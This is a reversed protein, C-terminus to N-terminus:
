LIERQSEDVIFKWLQEKRANDLDTFQAAFSNDEVRVIIAKNTFTEQSNDQATFAITIQIEEDVSPQTSALKVACGSTSINLIYGEGEVNDTVYHVAKRYLSFRLGNRQISNALKEEAEELSSVYVPHYGQFITALKVQKYFLSNKYMIGIMEGAENAVLYKMIKRFTPIINLFVLQCNSFDSIVNFGPKLEGVGFRIDTYFSDLEKKTVKGSVTFYLRNKGINPVVTLTKKLNNGM